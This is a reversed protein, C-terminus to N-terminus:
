KEYIVSELISDALEQGKLNAIIEGAFVIATGLGRSTIIKGDTKVPVCSVKAGELKDEFGPYCVAEKGQLLGLGGLVSPAACIAGIWKDAKAFAKVQECVVPHEGLYKTGPMGGPLVVMDMSEYDVDEALTDAKVCINHAGAVMLDGTVSATTVEIQARRLLDVVTLGEIEEFGEALFVCVRSM